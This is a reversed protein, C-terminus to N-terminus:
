DPQHQEYNGPTDGEVAIGTLNASLDPPLIECDTRLSHKQFEWIVPSEISAWSWSPFGPVRRYSGAKELSWLLERHLDHQWLGSVYCPELSQRTSRRRMSISVEKAIGSLAFLRDKGPQTPIHGSYSQVTNFWQKEGTGEFMDFQHKLMMDLELRRAVLENKPPFSRCHFIIAAPTFCVIRRSLIWEQYVWGRHVLESDAIQTQYCHDLTIQQYAYFYGRHAGSRDRYPLRAIRRQSLIDPRPPILGDPSKSTTALTLLAGQYYDAMRTAEVTWDRGGDGEQIICLSDIWLFHIGLHKAVMIAQQFAKPLTTADIQQRRAAYNGITTRSSETEGSWRHSLTIYAGVIGETEQLSIRPRCRVALTGGGRSAVPEEGRSAVTIIEMHNQSQGMMEIRSQKTMEDRSKKTMKTEHRTNDTTDVIGKHMKLYKRKDIRIELCHARLADEWVPGEEGLLPPRCVLRFFIWQEDPEISSRMRETLSGWDENQRSFTHVLLSCFDCGDDASRLAHTVSCGPAIIQKTHHRFAQIDFTECTECLGM